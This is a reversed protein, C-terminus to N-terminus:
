LLLTGLKIVAVALNLWVALSAPEIRVIVRLRTRRM